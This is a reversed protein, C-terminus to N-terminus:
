PTAEGAVRAPTAEDPSLMRTPAQTPSPVPSTRLFVVYFWLVSALLLTWLAIYGVSDRLVRPKDKIPASVKLMLRATRPWGRERALALARICREMGVRRATQWISEVVEEEGLGLSGHLGEGGM